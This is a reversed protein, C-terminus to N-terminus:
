LKGREKLKKIKSEQSKKLEDFASLGRMEQYLRIKDMVKLYLTKNEMIILKLIEFENQTGRKKEKNPISM